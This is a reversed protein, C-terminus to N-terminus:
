NQRLYLACETIIQRAQQSLDPVIKSVALIRMPPYMADGHWRIDNPVHQAESEITYLTDLYHFEDTFREIHVSGSYDEVYFLYIVRMVTQEDAFPLLDLQEAGM